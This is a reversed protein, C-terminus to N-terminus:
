VLRTVLYTPPGGAASFDMTAGSTTNTLGRSVLASAIGANHAGRIDTALQDGVMVANRTGVRALAAEFIAVFDTDTDGVATLAM